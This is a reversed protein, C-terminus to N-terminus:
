QQELVNEFHTKVQVSQTELEWWDELKLQILESDAQQKM